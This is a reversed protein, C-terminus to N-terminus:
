LEGAQQQQQLRVERREELSTLRATDSSIRQHIAVREAGDTITGADVLAENAGIKQELVAIKRDLAEMNSM